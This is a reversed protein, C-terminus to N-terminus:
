GHHKVDGHTELERMLLAEAEQESLQAVESLATARREVSVSADSSTTPGQAVQAEFLKGFIFSAMAEVTPRDIALTSPLPMELQAALTNRLEVAMLSDLGMEQLPQREDIVRSSELGLVALARERVHRALISRRQAEPASALEARISGRGTVVTRVETCGEEFVIDRLFAPRNRSASCYKRWDIKLVASQVSGDNLLRELTSIAERPSIEVVGLASWREADRSELRAMMGAGGWRGWNVSLAPHGSLRRAHALADLFTNAACYSSQGPSGLLGAGASFLIFFDLTEGRTLRDLVSGGQVKPALVRSFRTWTQQEVVGDDIVGAAHIIGRLPPMSARISGLVRAVEDEKSVDAREVVVQAGSIQLKDIAARAQKNPASRGVLVVIKAGRDVLWEAICLGLGGLGGTVLYTADSQIHISPKKGAVRGGLEAPELSLVIKGIHRAAAMMRFAEPARDIPFITRPLAHLEGTEFLPLIEAYMSAILGPEAEAIEALDFAFYKVDPRAASAQDSTWIDRKGLELFRGNKGLAAFSKAIFEGSLSNLVVDVGAGDTERAIEAAFDTSRSDFIHRVGLSRLYARKRESGATAYIEAGARQAIQVAALGVGGAAAHILVREGRGIKALRQLGYAATLFNIPISAADAFSLPSPIKAARAVAVTVFDRFAGAGFALVRDGPQFSTVGEGAREVVGACEGGLVEAPLGVMGLAGLVDRFNLGAARVRIEIEDAEPGRRINPRLELNEFAGPMAICLERPGGSGGGSRRSGMHLVLGGPRSRQVLRPVWRTLGRLAVEDEGDAAFLEDCLIASVRTDARPELDVAIAHIEPHERVLARRFGWLPAATPDVKTQGFPINQSGRAIFWLTPGGAEGDRVLAQTLHLASGCILEEARSLAEAGADMEPWADISWLHVIGRLRAGGAKAADGLLTVFDNAKAADVTVSQAGSNRAGDAGAATDSGAFAVLCEEGRSSLEAALSEGIGQRDALILWRGRGEYGGARTEVPPAAEWRVDYIWEDLKEGRPGAVVERDVRHLRLGRISAVIEGSRSMVRVDAVIRKGDANQPSRLTAHAWQPMEGGARASFEDIAVPLFVDNAAKDARDYLLAAGTIQLCADLLAPHVRYKGSEARLEAPLGLEGVAERNGADVRDLARFRAGYEPGVDEIAAYFEASTWTKFCRRRIEEFEAAADRDNGAESPTAAAYPSITGSAHLTWKQANPKADARASFIRLRHSGGAGKEVITQLLREEGERLALAQTLEV